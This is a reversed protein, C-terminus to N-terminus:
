LHVTMSVQITFRLWYNRFSRNLGPWLQESASLKSNQDHFTVPRLENAPQKLQFYQLSMMFCRFVCERIEAFQRSLLQRCCKVPRDETPLENCTVGQLSAILQQGPRIFSSVVSQRWFEWQACGVSYECHTASGRGTLFINRRISLWEKSFRFFNKKSSM